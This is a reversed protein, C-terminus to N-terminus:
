CFAKISVEKYENLLRRAIEQRCGKENDAINELSRIYCEIKKDFLELNCNNLFAVINWDTSKHKFYKHIRGSM